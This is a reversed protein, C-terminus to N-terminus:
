RAVVLTQTAREGGAELRVVYTGAPLASTAVTAAHEGPARPGEALTAVRRGLVDFVELRVDGARELAYRVLASSRAPNPAPARLVLSTAEPGGEGAVPAAARAAESNAFLNAQNTGGLSAFVATITGGAPISYPGVGIVGRQDAAASHSGQQITLGNWLDAIAHRQGAAPPYPTTLRYGSVPASIAMTGFYLAAPATPHFVGILRDPASYFALNTNAAAGALDWDWFMGPYVNTLATAGTNTIDYRHVVYPTNTGWYHNAEVSLNNPANTFV